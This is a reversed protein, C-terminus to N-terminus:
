ALVREVGCDFRKYFVIPPKQGRHQVAASNLVRRGDGNRARPSRAAPPLQRWSIPM